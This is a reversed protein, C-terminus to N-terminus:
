DEEDVLSQFFKRCIDDWEESCAPCLDFSGMNHSTWGTELHEVLPDGNYDFKEEYGCRDCVMNIMM